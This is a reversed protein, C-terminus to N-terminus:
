KTKLYYARGRASDCNVKVKLEDKDRTLAICSDESTLEAGNKIVFAFSDLLQTPDAAALSEIKEDEIRAMVIM